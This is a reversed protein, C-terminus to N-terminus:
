NIVKYKADFKNETKKIKLLKNKSVGNQEVKYTIKYVEKITDKNEDIFLMANNITVLKYNDISGKEKLAKNYLDGTRTGKRKAEESNLNIHQFGCSTLCLVAVSIIINKMSM